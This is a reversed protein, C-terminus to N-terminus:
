AAMLMGIDCRTRLIEGHTRHHTIAQMDRGSRYGKGAHWADKGALTRFTEVMCGPHEKDVHKHHIHGCYWYRHRTRGWAEPQDAAMIGPLDSMKAGHGHHSGILVRGFEMYRYLSPSLDVDVRPEADFYAALCLALALSSHPDHNGPMMWVRVLQHHTLLRKICYVMAKVGVQLVKAYRTDVDLSHGSQPTQNSSDDAHFFDGLNLLLATHSNPATAVLRDIAGCTLAEAAQLDFDDGTERAWSYLGFHPDGMPYVTMLDADAENPGSTLPAVGRVDETMAAVFERVLAEAQARDETTKVWQGRVKGEQDYYTSTGKVRFGPAAPKKMDHEPSWGYKAAKKKLLMLSRHVTQMPMGFTKAAAYISGHKRTAELYELQRVTAFQDLGDLTALDIPRNAM